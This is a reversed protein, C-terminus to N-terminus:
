LPSETSILSASSITVCASIKTVAICASNMGVWSQSNRSLFKSFKILSAFRYDESSLHLLLAKIFNCHSSSTFKDSFPFYLENAPYLPRLPRFKRAGSTTTAVSFTIEHRTSTNLAWRCYISFCYVM